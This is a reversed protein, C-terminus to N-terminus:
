INSITKEEVPDANLRIFVMRCWDSHSYRFSTSLPLPDVPRTPSPPRPSIRLDLISPLIYLKRKRWAAQKGDEIKSGRGETEGRGGTERHGVRREGEAARM